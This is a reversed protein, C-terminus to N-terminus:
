RSLCHTQNSAWTVRRSSYIYDWYTLPEQQLLGALHTDLDQGIADYKKQLDGLLEERKSLDKAM